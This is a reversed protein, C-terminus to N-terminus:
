ETLIIADVHQNCKMHELTNKTPWLVVGKVVPKPNHFMDVRDGVRPLIESDKFESQSFQNIILLKM